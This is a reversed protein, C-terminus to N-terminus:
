ARIEKMMDLYWKSNIDLGKEGRILNFDICSLENSREDIGAVGSNGNLAEKFAFDCIKFIYELDELNPASSRAFYGSKQILVRQINIKDSIIKSIWKGTNISDLQIHGFADKNIENGKSEIEDSIEKLFAGESIFINLCGIDNMM